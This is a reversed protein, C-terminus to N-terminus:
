QREWEHDDESATPASHHQDERQHSTLETQHQGLLPAPHATSPTFTKFKVPNRITRVERDAPSTLHLELQNRRFQDSSAVQGTDLVEGTTLRAQDFLRTWERTTKTRTIREIAAYFERRHVARDKTTAFRADSRLEDDDLVALTTKWHQPLYTALVIAGDSTAFVGSPASLGMQNGTRPAVRGTMLYETFDHAHLHCAVDYLSVDVVDGHGFRERNLLAALIAQATVHGTAVDIPLAGIKTPPGDPEGTISMWGTEGQLATDVGRREDDHHYASVSAYIIQPNLLRVTEVGLGLRTMVGPRFAQILVDAHKTLALARNRGDDTTLDLVVSEKGRNYTEFLGLYETGNPVGLQRAGDGGPPEIKIVRAGLDAMIMAALPGAVGHSFDLLLRERLPGGGHHHQSDTLNTSM